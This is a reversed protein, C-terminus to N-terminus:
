EGEEEETMVSPEKMGSLKEAEEYIEPTADRIFEAVPKLKKQLEKAFKYRKDSQIEEIEEKSVERKSKIEGIMPLEITRTIYGDKIIKDYTDCLADNICSLFVVQEASLENINM